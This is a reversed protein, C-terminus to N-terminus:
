ESIFKLLPILIPKGKEAIYSITGSKTKDSESGSIATSDAHIYPNAKSIFVIARERAEPSFGSFQPYVASIIDELGQNKTYIIGKTNTLVKEDQVVVVTGGSPIWNLWNMEEGANKEGGKTIIADSYYTKLGDKFPQPLKTSNVYGSILRCNNYHDISFNIDEVALHGGSNALQSSILGILTRFETTTTDVSPNNKKIFDRMSVAYGSRESHDLNIEESVPKIERPVEDLKNSNLIFRAVTGRGTDHLAPESIVTNDQIDDEAEIDAAGTALGSASVTIHIRGKTGNSRIVNSVPMDMYWVGDSMHNKNIDSEYIAPGVLTAPGTINWRVTNNAGYVHNGKSDVINARILVVSGRDAKIRSHSATLIIKAPRESMTVSARVTKGGLKAVASITGAEIHINNFTVSHFNSQSIIKFGHSIGNVFLEVSDCSTNVVIDKRQDIYKSRWFHPHIFVMPKKGYNAQWFFYAYKPERYVDVYGEPSVNRLPSNLFERNTGHDAYIWSCLNGMGFKASAKLANQQHEETGCQQGDAPELDRVDKNYWGRIAARRLEDMIMVNDLNKANAVSSGNSVKVATLLRTTDEELAYKSDAMHNTGDGMSWIMISPHNRDRRIMEKLQQVQVEPSFEQNGVYPVGEDVVMGYKDTLDYVIRDNPYHATRIFNYNLNGAIDAIDMSTIWKPIADGLWPYEQHRNGGHIILKKGNVYLFEEKNDWRFWRFGLPSNYNDTITKGDLVQSSVKYLYPDDNSWLHPNKVPKSAQDFTYTQGPDIEAETKLVQFIKGTSDMISTLLTCEKKEKYDNKVWTRVRVIGEKESVRPTTVFTGGEHTASGQMPIYLRDTLVIKVDRYIGGYVNFDGAALPPIKFEDNQRNNVAVVLLNDEGNKIFETIDFDFSGYGGKHDGLYKGNLWVKCYKQVGEFEVFVKSGTYDKSMSFHKRYWGWGVWWYPNEKELVNRIFPHTEGTTEYTYWTHPISVVPWKSDDLGPSEYGKGAGNGSFYNFTWQSNIVKEIRRSKQIEAPKKQASLASVLLLSSLIFAIFKM